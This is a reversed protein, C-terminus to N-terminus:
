QKGQLQEIKKQEELVKRKFYLGILNKDNGLLLAILSIVPAALIIFFIFYEETTSIGGNKIIFFIATGIVLLNLLIAVYKM